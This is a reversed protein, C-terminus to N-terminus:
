RATLMRVVLEPDAVRLGFRGVRKTVGLPLRAEVLERMALVVNPELPKATNVFDAAADPVSRWTAVEASAIQSRSFQCRLRRGVVIEVADGDVVLRSLAGARVERWLYVLTAVNLAAIVWAWTASRQAVWLHIAVGEVVLVIALGVALSTSLGGELPFTTRTAAETV